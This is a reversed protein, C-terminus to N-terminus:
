TLNKNLLSNLYKIEIASIEANLRRIEERATELQRDRMALEQEQVKRARLYRDNLDANAEQLAAFDTHLQDVNAVAQNLAAWLRQNESVVSNLDAQVRSTAGEASMRGMEYWAWGGPGKRGPEHDDDRM